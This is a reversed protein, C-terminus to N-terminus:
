EGAARLTEDHADICSGIRTGVWWHAVVPALTLGLRFLLPPELAPECERNYGGCCIYSCFCGTALSGILVGTALGVLGLATAASLNPRFRSITAAVRNGVSSVLRDVGHGVLGAIVAVGVFVIVFRLSWALGSLRPQAPHEGPAHPGFDVLLTYALPLGVALGVGQLCRRWTGARSRTLISTAGTPLAVTLFALSM